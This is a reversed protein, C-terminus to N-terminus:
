YDYKEILLNAVETLFEQQWGHLHSFVNANKYENGVLYDVSVDYVEALKALIVFSPTRIGNEYASITGNKVGVSKAVSSQKLGQSIRLRRLRVGLGEQM